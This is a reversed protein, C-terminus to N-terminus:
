ETGEHMERWKKRFIEKARHIRSKVTGERIGMIRSIEKIEFGEVVHLLLPLRYKAPISYVVREVDMRREHSPFSLLEDFEPFPPPTLTSLYDLIVRTALRWIWGNFNGKRYKRIKKMVRLFIEQVMDEADRVNGCMRLCMSFIRDKYHEYIEKMAEREGEKAREILREDM